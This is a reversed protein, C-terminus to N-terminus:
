IALSISVYLTNVRRTWDTNVPIVKSPGSIINTLGGTLMLKLDIINSLNYNLGLRLAMMDGSIGGLESARILAEEEIEEEVELIQRYTEQGERKLNYEMGYLFTFDSKRIGLDIFAYLSNVRLNYSFERFLVLGHRKDEVRYLDRLNLVRYGAGARISTNSSLVGSYSFGGRFLPLLPRSYDAAGVLELSSHTFATGLAFDFTMVSQARAQGGFFFLLPILLKGNM